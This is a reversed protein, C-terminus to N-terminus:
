QQKALALLNPGRRLAPLPFRRPGQETRAASFRCPGKHDTGATTAAM